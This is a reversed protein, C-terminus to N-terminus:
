PPRFLGKKISVYDLRDKEETYSRAQEPRIRTWKVVGPLRVELLLSLNEEDYKVYRHMEKGHARRIEHGHDNLLKFTPLLFPPVDMKIGATPNGETDRYEAVNRAKSFYFDHENLDHFTVITELYIHNHPSSRVRIIGALKMKRVVTDPVALAEVAFDQFAADMADQNEGKIPWVRMSRRAKDYAAQRSDENRIASVADFRDEISRFRRENSENTCKVKREQSVLASSNAKIQTMMQDLQEKKAVNALGERLMTKFEEAFPPKPSRDTGSASAMDQPSQEEVIFVPPSGTQHTRRTSKPKEASQHKKGSPTEVEEQCQDEARRKPLRQAQVM